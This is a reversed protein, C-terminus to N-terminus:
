LSMPRSVVSDLNKGLTVSMALANKLSNFFCSPVFHLSSHSAWKWFSLSNRAENGM